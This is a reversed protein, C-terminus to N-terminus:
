NVAHPMGAHHRFYPEPSEGFFPGLVTPIYPSMWPWPRKFLRRHSTNHLMLVYPGLLYGVLALHAAAWWWRFAGPVFLAVGSPVVTVSLVAMLRLFPTDRVDHIWHSAMRDLVSGGERPAYSPDRLVLGMLRHNYLRDRCQTSPQSLLSIPLQCGAGVQACRVQGSRVIVMSGLSIRGFAAVTARPRAM